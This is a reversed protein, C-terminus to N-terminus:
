TRCIDTMIEYTQAAHFHSSCHSRLQELSKVTQYISWMPANPAVTCMESLARRHSHFDEYSCLHSNGLTCSFDGLGSLNRGEAGDRM